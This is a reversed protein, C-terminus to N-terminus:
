SIPIQDEIWISIDNIIDNRNLENLLEHRCEPYLTIEVSSYGNSTYFDYLEQVEKGESGVPDKDGAIILIPLDKRTKLMLKKKSALSSLKLLDHYFSASCVFGSYPDQVYAAVIRNDRTLWDFATRNCYKTYAKRGFFLNNLFTSPRNGHFLSVLSSIVLGGQQILPSPYTTGCIIAGDVSDICQLVNRLILSGMSHGMLFLKTSLEQNKIFEVVKIADHIVKSYGKKKHFHGLENIKKDNGHGRHNYMYLSFGLDTMYDAFYEYRSIHEAMGHFFILNAVTAGKSPYHFVKTVYGEEQEICFYSSNM